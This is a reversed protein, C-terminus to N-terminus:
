SKEESSHSGKVSKKDFDVEVSVKIRHGELFKKAEAAIDVRALVQAAEKAFTSLFESKTKQANELFGGWLEKPLKMESLYSRVSEETLFITGVGTLVIKKMAEALQSKIDDAGM